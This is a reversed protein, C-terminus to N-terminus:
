ESAAIPNPEENLPHGTRYGSRPWIRRVLGVLFLSGTRNYM